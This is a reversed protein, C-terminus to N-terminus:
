RGRPDRDRRRRRLHLRPEPPRRRVARHARRVGRGRLLAPVGHRPAPAPRLRHLLAAGRHRRRPQRPLRPVAARGRAQDGRLALAPAAARGRADAAARVRRLGVVIVRLRAAPRPARPGGRAAAADGRRQQPRLPRLPAGLEHPRGARRRPPLRRRLRRAPARRRRERPRGLPARLARNARVHALNALKEAAPYNDNFCDVGVVEHGDALLAETLHSGVFGACGTVLARAM